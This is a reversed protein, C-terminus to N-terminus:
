VTLSADESLAAAEEMVRGVIAAALGVLVCFLVVHDIELRLVVEPALGLLYFVPGALLTAFMGVIPALVLLLGAKRIRAASAREFVLGRQYLALLREFQYLVALWPLSVLAWLALALARHSPSRLDWAIGDADEDRLASGLRLSLIPKIKLTRASQAHPPGAPEPPEVTGLGAGAARGTAHWDGVVLIGGFILAASALVVLYGRRLRRSLAVVRQMRGEVREAAM